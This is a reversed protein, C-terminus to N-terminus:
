RCDTIDFRPTDTLIVKVEPRHVLTELTEPDNITFLHIRAGRLMWAVFPTYFRHDLSIAAFGGRIYNRKIRMLALYQGLLTHPFATEDINFIWYSTYLGLRSFYVLNEPRDSEIIAHSLVGHRALLDHMDQAAQRAQAPTLYRITKTDLWFYGRGGVADFVQDLTTRKDPPPNPTDYRGIYYERRAVDYRIDIEIGPAGADFAAITQDLADRHHFWLKHCDTYFVPHPQRFQFNVWLNYGVFAIVALVLAGFAGRTLPHRLLAAVRPSRKAMGALTMVVLLVTIAVVLGALAKEGEAVYHSLPLIHRSALLRDAFKAPTTYIWHVLWRVITAELPYLVPSGGLVIGLWRWAKAGPQSVWWGICAAAVAAMLLWVWWSLAM